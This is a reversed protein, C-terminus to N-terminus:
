ITCRPGVRIVMGLSDSLRCQLLRMTKCALLITPM